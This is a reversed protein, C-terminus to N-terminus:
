DIHNHEEQWERESERQEEAWEWADKAKLCKDCGCCYGSPDIYITECEEGCEPCYVEEPSPMGNQEADRIWPADPIQTM